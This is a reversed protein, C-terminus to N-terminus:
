NNPIFKLQIRKLIVRPDTFFSNSIEIRSRKFACKVEGKLSNRKLPTDSSKTFSREGFEWFITREFVSILILVSHRFNMKLNGITSKLGKCSLSFIGQHCLFTLVSKKINWSMSQLTLKVEGDVYSMIAFSILM